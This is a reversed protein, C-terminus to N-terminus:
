LPPGRIMPRKDCEKVYRFRKIRIRAMRASHSQSGTSRRRMVRDRLMRYDNWDMGGPGGAAGPPAGGAAAGTGSPPASAVSAGGVAGGGTSVSSRKSSNNSSCSSGAASLQALLRYTPNPSIGGSGLGMVGLGAVPAHLSSSRGGGGASGRMMAGLPPCLDGGGGSPVDVSHSSAKQGLLIKPPICNGWSAFFFHM